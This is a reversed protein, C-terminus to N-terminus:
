WTIAAQARAVPTALVLCALLALFFRRDMVRNRPKPESMVKAAVSARTTDKTIGKHGKHLVWPM